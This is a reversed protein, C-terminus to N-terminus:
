EEETLIKKGNVCMNGDTDASIKVGGINISKINGDNDLEMAINGSKNRLTFIFTGSYNGIQCRKINNTVVETKNTSTSSGAIVAAQVTGSVASASVKGNSTAVGSYKSTLMKMQHLYFFLDKKVRGISVSTEKPEYPYYTIETIREALQQMGDLVVVTDGLSVKMIDGVHALKAIDVLSGSVNVSPVDIRDENDSDFEWRAHEYIDDPEVYDSYDRYGERVGYVGINDSDIYVKKSTNLSASAITADEKGYPYLRTIMESIDREVTINKLNRGMELRVNTVEGLRKVIAFGFGDVYIEGFGANSIIQQIVDYLNTKDIAEVFDIKFETEGYRTDIWEVGYPLEDSGILYFNSNAKALAAAAVESPAVGVTDATAGITPIHLKPTDANFVHQCSIKLITEGNNEKELKMIRFPQGECLVIMNEQISHAKETYFPYEFYLTYDGNITHTIKVEAAEHLFEIMGSDFQVADYNYLKLMVWAGNRKMITIMSFDRYM